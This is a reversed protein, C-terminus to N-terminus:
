SIKYRETIGWQQYTVKDETNWERMLFHTASDEECFNGAADFYLIETYGDRMNGLKRVIKVTM